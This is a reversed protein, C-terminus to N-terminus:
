WGLREKREAVLRFCRDTLEREEKKIEEMRSLVNRKRVGCRLNNRRTDIEHELWLWAEEVADSKAIHIFNDIRYDFYFFEGRIRLDRLLVHLRLEEKRGGSFTFLVKLVQSSTTQLAKVRSVLNRTFGIKVSKGFDIFYVVSM